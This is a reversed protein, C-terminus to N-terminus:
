PAARQWTPIGTGAASPILIPEEVGAIDVVVVENSAYTTTDSVVKGLLKTGDPSWTAWAFVPPHELPTVALSDTDVVVFQLGQWGTGPVTRSVVLRADGPSWVPYWIDGLDNITVSVSGDVPAVELRYAGDSGSLYAVRRGDWSWSPIFAEGSGTGHSLMWPDSGDEDIVYVGARAGPRAPARYAITSGTPSWAPYEGPSSVAVPDGAGVDVVYVTPTGDRADGYAIRRSDPAWSVPTGSGPDTLVVGEVLVKPDTGDANMVGLSVPAGEPADPELIWYAVRTGDPSWMAHAESGPGSTLRRPEGPDQSVVWIDGDTGFSILGNRAPGFPPAPRPQSAVVIAASIALLLALTGVVLATRPVAGLKAQTQMPLWREPIVWGPLRRTRALDDTVRELLGDPERMPAQADLWTTISRDLDPRASM